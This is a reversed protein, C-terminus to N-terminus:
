FTVHPRAEIRVQSLSLVAASVVGGAPWLGLAGGAARQLSQAAALHLIVCRAADLSYVVSYCVM